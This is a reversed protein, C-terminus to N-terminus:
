TTEKSPPFEATKGTALLVSIIPHSAAWMSMVSTTMSCNQHRPFKTVARGAASSHVKSTRAACKETHKRQNPTKTTNTPMKPPPPRNTLLAQLPDLVGSADHPYFDLPEFTMNTSHNKGQHIPSNASSQSTFSSQPSDNGQSSASPSMGDVDAEEAM